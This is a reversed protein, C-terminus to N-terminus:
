QFAPTQLPTTETKAAPAADLAAKTKLGVLGYGNTEISGSCIGMNECQFRRVVSLMFSDFKGDPIYGSVFYGRGKLKKQVEKVDDGEMGPYLVKRPGVPKVVAPVTATSTGAAKPAVASTPVTAGGAISTRTLIGVFGTGDIGKKTQYSIVSAKTMPGFYGTADQSLPFDGTGQLFIQLRRVEDNKMGLSLNYALIIAGASPTIQATPTQVTTPTQTPTVPKPVVPPIITEVKLVAFSIELDDTNENGLKDKCRVYYTYGTDEKLDTLTSSHSLYGTSSFNKPLDAYSLGATPGYRCYAEEDTSVSLTVIITGAGITEAPSVRKRVPAFTDPAEIFSVSLSHTSKVDSFTYSSGAGQTTGDVMISSVMYGSDPTFTFAQGQGEVITSAGPSVMGGGSQTVTILYNPKSNDVNILMPSLSRQNGVIDRAEVSILATTSAHLTTDWVVQYPAYTDETGFKEGEIYFQVGAVGTADTVNAYLTVYRGGVTSGGAPSILTISPGEVDPRQATTITAGGSYASLNNAADTARVRYRYTTGPSVGTDTYTLGQVSGIQYFSSCAAGQCREIQYETVGYADTSADWSLDVKQETKSAIASLRTPATPAIIDRIPETVTISLRATFNGFWEIGERIMKWQFDYTGPTTPATVNFTFTKEQGPAISETELLKIRNLGWTMNDVPAQSGFRYQEIERWTTNGINKLTISIPYVQGASMTSPVTQSVMQADNVLIAAHSPHAGLFGIVFFAVIFFSLSHKM